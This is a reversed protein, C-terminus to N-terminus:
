FRSLAAIIAVSILILAVLAINIEMVTEEETASEGGVL